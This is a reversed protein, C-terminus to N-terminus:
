PTTLVGCSWLRAAPVEIVEDLLHGTRERWLDLGRAEANGALHYRPGKYPALLRDLEDYGEKAAPHVADGCIVLFDVLDNEVFAAVADPVYTEPFDPNGVHCDSIVGICYAM